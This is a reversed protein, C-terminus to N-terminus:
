KIRVCLTFLNYNNDCLVITIHIYPNGHDTGM